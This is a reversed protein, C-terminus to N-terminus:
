AHRTEPMPRKIARSSGRYAASGGPNMKVPQSWAQPRAAPTRAEPYPDLHNGEAKLRQPDLRRLRKDICIDDLPITVISREQLSLATARDEPADGSTAAIHLESGLDADIAAQTEYTPSM